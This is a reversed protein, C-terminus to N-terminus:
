NVALSIARIVWVGSGVTFDLIVDALRSKDFNKRSPKEHIFSHLLFHIPGDLHKPCGHGPFGAPRTHTHQQAQRHLFHVPRQQQRQKTSGDQKPHRGGAQQRLRHKRCEISGRQRPQQQGATIYEIAILPHPFQLFGKAIGIRFHQHPPRRYNRQIHQRYLDTESKNQM